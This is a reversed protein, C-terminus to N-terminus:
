SDRPRCAKGCFGSAKSICNQKSQVPGASSLATTLPLKWFCKSNGPAIEPIFDRYFDVINIM